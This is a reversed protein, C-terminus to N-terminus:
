EVRRMTWPYEPISASAPSATTSSTYIYFLSYRFTVEGVGELVTSLASVEARENSSDTFDIEALRINDVDMVSKYTGWPFVGYYCVTATENDSSIEGIEQSVIYLKGNSKSYYLKVPLSNVVPFIFSEAEWGTSELWMNADKNKITVTWPTEGGSFSIEWKGIWRSFDEVPEEEPVVVEFENYLGSLEGDEDLGVMYVVYEGSRLRPEKWLANGKRKMEAIDADSLDNRFDEFLTRKKDAHDPNKVYQELDYTTLALIVYSQDDTSTCEFNEYEIVENYVPDLGSTRAPKRTLSWNENKEWVDPDRRTRFTISATKGYLNGNAPDIASVILRYYEKVNLGTLEISKNTGTRSVIRDTLALEIEIREKILQAADTVLDETHMFVWQVDSGGNHRVRIAASNLLVEDESLSFRIEENVGKGEESPLTECGAFASLCLVAFLMQFVINIRKM